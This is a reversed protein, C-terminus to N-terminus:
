DKAQVTLKGGDVTLASEAAGKIGNKASGVAHLSGDGSVTLSSGSKVKVCAGEFDANTAETSADESDTLTSEGELKMLVSSGKKIVVPATASATLDLDQLILTVDSLGKSVVVSGESCQGTIRYTGAATVTLTTGSIVYGAGPETAQIGSESFTLFAAQPAVAQTEPQPLLAAALLLALILCLWKKFKM